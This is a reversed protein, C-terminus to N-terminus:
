AAVLRRFWPAIASLAGDTPAESNFTRYCPEVTEKKEVFSTSVNGSMRAILAVGERVKAWTSGFRGRTTRMAILGGNVLGRLADGLGSVSYGLEAALERQTFTRGSYIRTLLARQRETVMWVRQHLPSWVEVTLDELHRSYPRM